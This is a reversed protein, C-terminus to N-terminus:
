KIRFNTPILAPKSLKKIPFPVPDYACIPNRYRIVIKYWYFKLNCKEEQM